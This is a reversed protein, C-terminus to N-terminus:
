PRFIIVESDKYVIEKHGFLENLITSKFPKIKKIEKKNKMGFKGYLNNHYIINFNFKGFPKLHYLGYLSNLLTKRILDISNQKRVILSKNRPIM